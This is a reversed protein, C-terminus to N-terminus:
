RFVFFISRSPSQKRISPRRMCASRQWVLTAGMVPYSALISDGGEALKDAYVALSPAITQVIVQFVDTRFAAAQFTEEVFAATPLRGDM